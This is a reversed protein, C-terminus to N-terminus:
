EYIVQVASLSLNNILSSTRYDVTPIELPLQKNNYSTAIYGNNKSYDGSILQWIPNILRINPKGDNTPYVTLNGDTNYTFEEHTTYPFPGSFVRDITAIRNQSDWTYTGRGHPVHTNGIFVNGYYEGWTYISDNVVKGHTDYFFLRAYEFTSDTYYGIYNLLRGHQDYNFRYSPYGTSVHSRLIRSPDGKANYEFKITDIQSYDTKYILQKIRPPRLPNNPWTTDFKKCSPLAACLLVAMAM